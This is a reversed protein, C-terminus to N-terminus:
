TNYTKSRKGGIILYKLSSYKIFPMKSKVNKGKQSPTKLHAFIVTHIHVRSLITKNSSNCAYMCRIHYPGM